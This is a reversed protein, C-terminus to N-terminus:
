RVDKTAFIPLISRCVAHQISTALLRSAGREILLSENWLQICLGFIMRDRDCTTEMHAGNTGADHNIKPELCAVMDTGKYLQPKDM